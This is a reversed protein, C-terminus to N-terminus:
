TTKLLQAIQTDRLKNAPVWSGVIATFVAQFAMIFFYLWPFQFSFPMEVFVNFQLTLTIAIMIGTLAGCLFSALVTALAEYVYARILQAVTFGISRMVAFSWSNQKVNTAFSVWLLFFNLGLNVFSIIYFFMMLMDIAMTTTEKFLQTDLVLQQERALYAKLGNVFEEKDNRPLDDRLRVFLKEYKLETKDIKDNGITKPNLVVHVGGNGTEAEHSKEGVAGNSENRYYTNQKLVMQFSDMSTLLPARALFLTYSSVVLPYGPLKKLMARPHCLYIADRKSQDRPDDYNFIAIMNTRPTVSLLETAGTSVIVNLFEAYKQNMDINDYDPRESDPLTSPPPVGSFLKEPRYTDGESRSYLSGILDDTGWSTKNYEIEEDRQTVMVYAPYVTNGFSKDVGTLLQTVEPFGLLNTGFSGPFQPYRKLSFTTYAYDVVAGKQKQQDLFPDIFDRELPEDFSTAWVQIDAGVFAEVNNQISTAMLTFVAGGFIVSGVSITFMIFTKSSRSRHMALNKKILTELVKDKGWLICWLVAKELPSQLASAILCFGLLMGLLILLLLFFFLKLDNFIFTYPMLYYVIMGSTVMFAALLTQWLKLGMDELRKATVETVSQSQHAIDLADRLSRGLARQIPVINALLPVGLGLIIPIIISVLDMTDYEPEFHSFTAIFYEILTNTAVALAMAVATGPVAFTLAETTLLGVLAAKSLGLARLMGHEYTKEEVNSMLLSYILICGLIAVIIVSCQLIQQVFLGLLYSGQMSLALPFTVTANYRLGLARMLNDSRTVLKAKMNELGYTYIDRRDKFIGVAVLAAEHIDFDGIIEEASPLGLSLFSDLLRRQQSYCVQEFMTRLLFTSDVLIVNGLTAPFKGQPDDVSDIVSFDLQLESLQDTIFDSSNLEFVRSPGDQNVVTEGVADRLEQITVDQMADEDDVTADIGFTDSLQKALESVNVQVTDDDDFGAARTAVLLADTTNSETSSQNLLTLISEDQLLGRDELLKFVDLKLLIHDGNHTELGLQRLLSDSVHAEGEGLQRLPWGRGVPIKKELRTDVVVLTVLVSKNETEPTDWKRKATATLFWRPAIGALDKNGATLRSMETQDLLPIEGPTNASGATMLVDMEGTEEESLKLFIVGSKAIANTVTATVFVVILVTTLGIFFNRPRRQVEAATLRASLGVTSRFSHWWASVRRRCCNKEDPDRWATRANGSRDM